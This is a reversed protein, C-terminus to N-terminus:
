LTGNNLKRRDILKGCEKCFRVEYGTMNVRCSMNMEQTWISIKNHPCRNQLDRIEKKHKEKLKSLKNM